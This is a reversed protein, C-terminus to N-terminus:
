IIEYKEFIRDLQVEDSLLVPRTSSGVAKAVIGISEMQDLLRDARNKSIDLKRQLLASSGTQNIVILRAAEAFLPDFKINFSEISSETKYDNLVSESSDEKYAELIKDLITDDPVLVFRKGDENPSGVIGATELQNMIIAVRKQGIALQVQLNEATISQKSVVIRAAKEFLQDFKVFNYNGDEDEVYDGYVTDSEKIVDQLKSKTQKKSNSNTDIDSQKAESNYSYHYQGNEFIVDIISTCTDDEWKLVNMRNDDETFSQYDLQQNYEKPEGCYSNITEKVKQIENIMDNFTTVKYKPSECKISTIFSNEIVEIIITEFTTKLNRNVVDISDDCLTYKIKNKNTKSDCNLLINGIKEVPIGAKFSTVTSAKILQTNNEIENKLAEREDKTNADIISDLFWKISSFEEKDSTVLTVKTKGSNDIVFVSYQDSGVTHYVPTKKTETVQKATSGGVIAGVPGAILAGAVGRGIASGTSTKTVSEEQYTVNVKAPKFETKYKKITDSKYISDNLLIRNSKSDYLIHKKSKPLWLKDTYNGFVAKSEELSEKENRNNKAAEAIAYIIGIVALVGLGILFSILMDDLSGGAILAFLIFVMFPALTKFVKRM